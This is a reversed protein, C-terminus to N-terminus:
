VAGAGRVCIGAGPRSRQRREFGADEQHALGAVCRLVVLFHRAPRRVDKAPPRTVAPVSTLSCYRSSRSRSAKRESQPSRLVCSRMANVSFVPLGSRFQVTSASAPSRPMSTRMLLKMSARIEIPAPTHAAQQACSGDCSATRSWEVGGTLHRNIAPGHRITM